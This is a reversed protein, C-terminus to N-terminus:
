IKIPPNMPIPVPDGGGRVYSMEENTLEFQEFIEEGFNSNLTKM